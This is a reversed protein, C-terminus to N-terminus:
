RLDVSGSCLVCLRQLARAEAAPLPAPPADAAAPQMEVDDTGVGTDKLVPPEGAPPREPAAEGSAGPGGAAVADGGATARKSDLERQRERDRCM